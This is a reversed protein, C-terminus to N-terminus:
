PIKFSALGFWGCFYIYITGGICIQTTSLWNVSSMYKYALANVQSAPSSNELLRLTALRMQLQVNWTTRVFLLHPSCGSLTLAM